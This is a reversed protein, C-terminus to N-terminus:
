RAPGDIPQAMMVDDDAGLKVLAASRDRDAVRLLYADAATPGDVMSAGSAKLADRMDAVTAEPRFMIIINAAPAAAPKDGLAVYAPTTSPLLTAALAVFAVQATALAAVAPRTLIHWVEAATERVGRRQKPSPVAIRQRLREWGPDVPAASQFQDILRREAQLQRQCHACSSLHTEVIVRDEPDLQGTAYWPLLAEAERHAGNDIQNPNM